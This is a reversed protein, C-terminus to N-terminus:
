RQAVHPKDSWPSEDFRSSTNSRSSAFLDMSTEVPPPFKSSQASKRFAMGLVADFGADTDERILAVNIDIRATVFDSLATQNPCHVVTKHEGSRPARAENLSKHLMSECAFCHLQSFSVVFEGQSLDADRRIITWM